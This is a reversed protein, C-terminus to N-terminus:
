QGSQMQGMRMQRGDLIRQRTQEVSSRTPPWTGSGGIGHGSPPPEAQVPSKAPLPQSGSTAIGPVQSATAQASAQSTQPSPTEASQIPSTGGTIARQSAPLAAAQEGTRKKQMDDLMVVLKDEEKVLVIRNPEIESVIYGRLSAGKKLALQRKGRGATSYPVKRDEVFAISMDDTILTGYLLLDPKSMVNEQQKEPPIKREPHFLNKDSIVAYDVQSSSQSLGNKEEPWEFTEKAPPHSMNAPNLLPMVVYILVAAVVAALLGNLVNM